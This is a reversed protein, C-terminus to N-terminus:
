DWRVEFDFHNYGTKTDNIRETFIQLDASVINGHEDRQVHQSDFYEHVSYLKYSTTREMDYGWFTMHAGTKGTYNEELMIDIYIDKVNWKFEYYDNAELVGVTRRSHGSLEMDTIMFNNQPIIEDPDIAKVHFSFDYHLGYLKEPEIELAPDPDTPSGYQNIEKYYGKVLYEDDSIKQIDLDKNSFVFSKEIESIFRHYENMTGSLKLGGTIRFKKWNIFSLDADTHPKQTVPVTITKVVKKQLEDQFFSITVNGTRVDKTTNEEVTVIVTRGTTAAKIWKQDSEASFYKLYTVIDIFDVDYYAEFELKEVSLEVKLDEETLNAEILDSENTTVEVKTNKGKQGNVETTNKDGNNDVTTIKYNGDKTVPVRTKGDKGLAISTKGDPGEAIVVNGPSKKDQDEVEIIGTESNEGNEAAEAENLNKEITEKYATQVTNFTETYGYNNQDGGVHGAIVGAVTNVVNRAAGSVNEGKKIANGLDGVAMGVDTAEKMLGITGNGTGAAAGYVNVAVETAKGGVDRTAEAVPNNGYGAERAAMNFDENNQCLQEFIECSEIFGADRNALKNRWDRYNNCGLRDRSYQLSNWMEEWKKNNNMGPQKMTNLIKENYSALKEKMQLYGGVVSAVIRTQPTNTSLVGKDDLRQTAETYRDANLGIDTALEYFRDWDAQWPDYDEIGELQFNNSCNKYMEWKMAELKVAGEVMTEVDSKMEKSGVYDKYERSVITKGTQSDEEEEEKECATTLGGICLVTLAMLMWHKLNTTTM